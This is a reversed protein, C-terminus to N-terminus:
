NRVMARRRSSGNHPAPASKPAGGQLRFNGAGLLEDVRRRLEPDITVGGKADLMVCGGDALELRLRLPKSGPYGRVIERLTTLLDPGHVDERVRILVGSTFRASLEELPILENVILNVEESAPRRDVTARLALIADAKVLEGFEAFQEPWLICRVIGDFDELDWMAYKTHTSGPRPNKTHSFKIAALMGGMLVETRAELKALQSSTHTCYTRLVSEHEALPHSTLYFGLVEKEMALREKEGFEPLDPLSSKSSATPEEDADMFLGRQGSRRDALVAAGCQMARDIAAMLQARRAGLSDFAGAKVLTEIVARGCAQPDVRECFDFLSAFAGGDRRAAVIAESAGSGCGKIASLGFLIKGEAVAFDVESRNVDPPVVEVQMRQCDELHEVLSDKSKFNRGPIDGSLLAAM